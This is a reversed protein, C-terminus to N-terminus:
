VEPLQLAQDITIPSVQWVEDLRITRASLPKEIPGVTGFAAPIRREAMKKILSADPQKLPSLIQLEYDAAIINLVPQHTATTDSNFFIFGLEVSTPIFLELFDTPEEYPSELGSVYGTRVGRDPAIASLNPFRGFAEESEPFRVYMKIPTPKIGIGVHLLRFPKTRPIFLISSRLDDPDRLRLQSSATQPPIDVAAGNPDIVNYPKFHKIERGLIRTFIFGDQFRLALLHNAQLFKSTIPVIGLPIEVM